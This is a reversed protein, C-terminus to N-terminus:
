KKERAKEQKMKLLFKEMRDLRKSWLLKIDSLWEELEKMGSDNLCYIRKQADKKMMLLEAEQLVKLHQSIAPPSMAFNRSIETSTLEGNRAVLRVIERRTDDGLAAFANMLIYYIMLKILYISLYLVGSKVGIRIHFIM